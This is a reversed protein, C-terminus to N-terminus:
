ERMWAVITALGATLALLAGPGPSPNELMTLRISAYVYFPSTSLLVGAMLMPYKDRREVLGILAALLGAYFPASFHPLISTLWISEEEVSFWPTLISAAALLLSALRIKM